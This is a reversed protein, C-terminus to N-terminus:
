VGGVQRETKGIKEYEEIFQWTVLKGNLTQVKEIQENEIINRGYKEISLNVLFHNIDDFLPDSASLSNNKEGLILKDMNQYFKIVEKKTQNQCLEGILLSPNVSYYMKKMKNFGIIKSLCKGVQIGIPYSPMYIADDSLLVYSNNNVQVCSLYDVFADDVGFGFEMYKGDDYIIQSFGSILRDKSILKTAALHNVEHMTYQIPVTKNPHQLVKMYDTFDDNFYYAVKINVDNKLYYNCLNDYLQKNDVDEEDLLIEICKYISPVKNRRINGLLNKYTCDKYLQVKGNSGLKSHNLIFDKRIINEIKLRQLEENIYDLM